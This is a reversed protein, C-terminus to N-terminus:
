RTSANLCRMEGEVYENDDVKEIDLVKSLEAHYTDETFREVKKILVPVSSLRKNITFINYYRKFHNSVERITRCAESSFKKYINKPMIVPDGLLVKTCITMAYSTTTVNYGGELALILRGEALPKLMQIFHGFTEPNVQYGGLPDHIGADFGASVIVIQPGYSYAAPLIINHFAALYETDGMKDRNFPININYGKGCGYGDYTYHRPSNTPFFKGDEDKHISIYMVHSSQYFVNQTGNGHHIDFDVILIRQLNYKMNLYNAAVAVNNVFCFGMPTNHEAHHGPPRVIAVGARATANMIVDILNLLGSVALLVADHTYENVYVDKTQRM